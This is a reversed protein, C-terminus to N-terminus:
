RTRHGALAVQRRLSLIEKQYSAIHQTMYMQLQELQEEANTARSSLQAREVEAKSLEVALQRARYTAEAGDAPAKVRLQVLLAENEQRLAVLERGHQKAALADRAVVGRQAEIGSLHAMLGSQAQLSQDLVRPLESLDKGARRAAGLECELREFRAGMEGVAARYTEEAEGMRERMARATAEAAAVRREAAHVLARVSQAEAGVGGDRAGLVAVAFPSPGDAGGSADGATATSPATRGQGLALGSRRVLSHHAKRLADLESAMELSRAQADAAATELSVEREAFSLVLMEQLEHVRSGVARLESPLWASAASAVEGNERSRSNPRNYLRAAHSARLSPPGARSEAESAAVRADAHEALAAMYARLRAAYEDHQGRIRRRAEGSEEMLSVERARTETLANVVTAREEHAADLASMAASLQSSAATAAERMKLSEARSIEAEEDAAAAAAVAEARAREARTMEARILSMKANSGAAGVELEAARGANNAAKNRESALADRLASLENQMRGLEADSTRLELGLAAAAARAEEKASQAIEEARAAALLESEVVDLRAKAAAAEERARLLTSRYAVVDEELEESEAKSTKLAATAAEHLKALESARASESDAVVEAKQMRGSLEAAHADATAAEAEREVKLDLLAQGRRVSEEESELLRALTQRREAEAESLKERLSASETNAADREAAFAAARMEAKLVEGELESQRIAARQAEESALAGGDAAAGTAAISALEARLTSAEAMLQRHVVRVAWSNVVPFCKGGRARSVYELTTRSQQPSGPRVCGLILTHANGGLQGRIVRLLAASHTDLAVGGDVRAAAANLVRGLAIASAFSAPPQKLRLEDLSESLAEWGGIRGVTLRSWLELEGATDEGGASGRGGNSLANAQLGTGDDDAASPPWPQRVTFTCLTTIASEEIGHEAALAHLAGLSRAYASLLEGLSSAKVAVLGKAMAGPAPAELSSSPAIQVRGALLDYPREHYLAMHQMAIHWRGVSGLESARPSAGGELATGAWLQRLSLQVLGPPNESLSEPLLGPGSLTTGKGSGKEGVALLLAHQGALVSACLPAIAQAHVQALPVDASFVQDFEFSRTEPAASARQVVLAVKNGTAFLDSEAGVRVRVVARIPVSPGLMRDGM